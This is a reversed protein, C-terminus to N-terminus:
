TVETYLKVVDISNKEPNLTINDLDAVIEVNIWERGYKEDLGRLILELKNRQIGFLRYPSEPINSEYLESVTINYRGLREAYRYLSYLIALPHLKLNPEVPIGKKEIAIVINKGKKIPIGIEMEDGLPTNSFLEVLERIANRKTRERYKDGLASLLEDRTYIKGWSLNSVYWEILPSNKALNTWIVAWTFLDDAGIEILLSGVRSLSISKKAEIIESDILWLKMSDRQIPGLSNHNWWEDPNSFFEKLWSKRLGFTKYRALSKMSKVVTSIRHSDAIICGRDIFTLCRHCHTCMQEDIKIDNGYIVIASVPCEIECVGCRICYASKYSINKVLHLIKDINSLFEIRLKKNDNVWRFKYYKSGVTIVGIDNSIVVKGLTKIWEFWDNQTTEIFITTKGNINVINVKERGDLNKNAGIRMKWAGSRIFEKIEDGKCGIRRAYDEIVKLYPKIEDKFALWLITEKWKSGYPCVACGVRTFGFRYLRNLPLNRMFIYLFVEALNWDILPHVNIQQIHKGKSIVSLSLRQLSEDRRIGDYLLVKPNSKKSIQKILKITPATKFLTCCWRHVRSPVGVIEWMQIAPKDYKATFFRLNLYKQKIKEIFDYTLSLEMGTDNFIVIFEDPPLIRQVLDLLVTSDKGGSFAVVVEDVKESYSQWADKIFDLTKHIIDDMIKSNVKIMKNVNVPKLELDKEFFQINPKSYFGYFSVTAVKEGEYYYTDGVCWMLPERVKPYCMYKDFGLIDLEEFFVPRVLSLLDEDGTTVLRIGRSKKDWRVNYM